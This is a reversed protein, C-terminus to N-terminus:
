NGIDATWFVCVVAPANASFFVLEGQSLPWGLPTYNDTNLASILQDTVQDITAGGFYDGVQVAPDVSM